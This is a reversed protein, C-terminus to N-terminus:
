LSYELKEKMFVKRGSILRANENEESEFTESFNDMNVKENIRRITM